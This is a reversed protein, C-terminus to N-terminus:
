AVVVNLLGADYMNRYIRDPYFPLYQKITKLNFGNAKVYQLLRDTLEPGKLESIECVEKMLDLFQLVDANDDDVLVCPRRIIIRQGGLKIKRLATTAKNTYVEYATPVQTTLGLQNAFLLGSFYGCRRGREETYKKRVVVDVPLTTGWPFASKKPVFYIGSDFRRIKGQETLRKLSQRVSGSGIGPVNIESLFVPENEGFKERFFDFVVDTQTM